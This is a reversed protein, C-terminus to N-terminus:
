WLRPLLIAAAVCCVTLSLQVILVVILWRRAPDRLASEALADVRAGLWEGLTAYTPPHGERMALDLQRLTIRGVLQVVRRALRPTWRRIWAFRGPAVVGSEDSLSDFAAGLARTFQPYDNADHLRPDIVCAKEIAAALLARAIGLKRVSAAAAITIGHFLIFPALILHVVLTAVAAAVARLTGASWGAWFAVGVLVFGLLFTHLLLVKGTVALAAILMEGIATFVTGSSLTPGAVAIPTAAIQASM